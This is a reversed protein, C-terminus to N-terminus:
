LRHKYIRPSAIQRVEAITEKSIDQKANYTLYLGARQYYYSSHGCHNGCSKAHGLYASQKVKMYIHYSANDQTELDNEYGSQDKWFDREDEMSFFVSLQEHQADKRAQKEYFSIENDQAFINTIAGLAFLVLIQVRLRM